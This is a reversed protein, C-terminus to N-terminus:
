TCWLFTDFWSLSCKLRYNFETIQANRHTTNGVDDTYIPQKQHTLKEESPLAEKEIIKNTQNQGKVKHRLHESSTEHREGKPRM